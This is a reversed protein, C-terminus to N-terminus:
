SYTSRKINYIEIYCQSGKKHSTEYTITLNHKFPNPYCKTFLYDQPQIVNDEIEVTGYGQGDIYAGILGMSTFECESYIIGYKRAWILTVSADSLYFCSKCEVLEGFVNLYYSEGIFAQILEYPCGTTFSWYLTDAIWASSSFNETKLYNTVPNNDLDNTDLLLVLDGENKLWHNRDSGPRGAKFHPIENILTDAVISFYGYEIPGGPFPPEIEYIWYDNPHMPNFSYEDPRERVKKQYAEIQEPTPFILQNQIYSLISFSTAIWFILLLSLSTRKM